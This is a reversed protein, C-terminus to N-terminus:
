LGFHGSCTLTHCFQLISPIEHEHVCHRIVQDSCMCWLYPDDWAYYKAESRLKDIQHKKFYALSESAVLYNVLDVYWLDKGQLELNNM